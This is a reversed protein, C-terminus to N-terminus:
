KMGGEDITNCVFWTLGLLRFEAQPRADSPNRTEVVIEGGLGGQDTHLSGAM